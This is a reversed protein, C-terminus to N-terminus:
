ECHFARHFLGGNRIADCTDVCQPPFGSGCAVWLDPDTTPPPPCHTPLVWCHGPADPPPCPGGEPGLLRGCLALPDPCALNSPGGCPAASTGNMGCRGPISVSAGAARRWCENFYTVGTECDCVPDKQLQDDCLPYLECTGSTEGCAKKSCYSDDPCDSKATCRQPTASPQGADTDPITAVVITEDTCAPASGTAIAAAFASVFLRPLRATV